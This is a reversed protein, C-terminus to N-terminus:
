VKVYSFKEIYKLEKGLLFRYNLNNKKCYEIAAIAKLEDNSKIWGKVEEITDNNVLFDPVYYTNVGDANIYPIRIKHKKTWIINQNELQEMRVLEYSSDYWQKTGDKKIFHGTKWNNKIEYDGNALKKTYEDTRKEILATKKSENEPKNLDEWIKRSRESAALKYEPTNVSALQSKRHIEKKMPNNESIKLRVEPRKAPNNDGKWKHSNKLKIESIKNKTEQSLPRGLVLCRHCVSNIKVSRRLSGECSYFLDKDCKPCKKTYPTEIYWIVCIKFLIYGVVQYTM